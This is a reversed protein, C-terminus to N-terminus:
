KPSADPKDVPAPLPAPKKPTPLTPRVPPAPAAPAGAWTTDRKLDDILEEIAWLVQPGANAYNEVTKTRDARTVTVFVTPNDTVPASYREAFCSFGVEDILRAVNHFRWAEVKGTRKGAPKAHARGEYEVVGDAKVTFTYDPCTGYCATRRLTISTIGHGVSRAADLARSKTVDIPRCEPEIGRAPLALALATAILLAAPARVIM